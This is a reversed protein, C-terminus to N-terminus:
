SDKSKKKSMEPPVSKLQRKDERVRAPQPCAEAAIIPRGLLPSEIYYFARLNMMTNQITTQIPDQLM